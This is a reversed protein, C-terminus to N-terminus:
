EYRLIGKGSLFSIVGFTIAAIWFSGAQLLEMGQRGFGIVFIFISFLYWRRIKAVLLEKSNKLTTTCLLFASIVTLPVSANLDLSFFQRTSEFWIGSGVTLVMLAFLPRAAHLWTRKTLFFLIEFIFIEFLVSVVLYIAQNPGSAVFFLPVTAIAASSILTQKTKM